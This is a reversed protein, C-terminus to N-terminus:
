LGTADTTEMAGQKARKHVGRGLMFMSIGTSLLNIGVVLGLAWAATSPFGLWLLVGLVISLVGSLVIWGWAPQDRVRLGVATEVIGSVVLYTILLLTLTALGLVPNALLSIGAFAYVIALLVQGVFGKWGPARFAHAVHVLAGLVLLAGLLISLSVGTVFPFLIALVGLLAIVVGGIELERWSDQVDPAGTFPESDVGTEASM